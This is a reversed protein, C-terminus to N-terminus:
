FFNAQGGDDQQIIPSARSSSSESSSDDTYWSQRCSQSVNPFPPLTKVHIPEETDNNMAMKPGNMVEILQPTPVGKIFEIFGDDGESDDHISCNSVEDEEKNAICIIDDFRVTKRPVIQDTSEPTVHLLSSTM